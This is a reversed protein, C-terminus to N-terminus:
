RVCGALVELGGTPLRGDFAATDLCGCGASGAIASLGRAAAGAVSDSGATSGLMAELSGALADTRPTTNKARTGGNM